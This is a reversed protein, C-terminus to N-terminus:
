RAFTGITHRFGHFSCGPRLAGSATLLRVRKFFSARLGSESWPAACANVAIELAPLVGRRREWADALIDSFAFQM